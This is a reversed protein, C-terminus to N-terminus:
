NQITTSYTFSMQCKLLRRLTYDKVVVGSFVDDFVAYETRVFSDAILLQDDETNIVLVENDNMMKYFFKQWFDTASSDKNPRVNLIKDWGNEVVKGNKKFRFRATSMTRAAFNLVTDIAMKKLYSRESKEQIFEMNEFLEELRKKRNFIGM